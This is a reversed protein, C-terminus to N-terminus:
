PINRVIYPGFFKSVSVPLNKWTRIALQFKPNKPNLEPAAQGAGLLYQWYLQVPEAGWQQKFKFTGENPTSRGFDFKQFGNGIAFRIAEWYLLNNPCFAKYDRNSSAWPIEATDRFWSIIGAAIVSENHFVSLIRSSEPFLTLINKFFTKGYVPTGLDRMNRAFVEYFGDLLELGGIKVTLGSKEAKRIQNRLKPNFAQWQSDSDPSLDLIMTVKHEKCALGEKKYEVHRLELYEGNYKRVLCQAENLLLDAVRDNDVLLGGYNFFPLSVFFKGFLTSRMFVLPLVGRILGSEERAALYFTRHGFSEEIVKKWKYQHYNVAQPATAVYADWDADEGNYNEIRLSM